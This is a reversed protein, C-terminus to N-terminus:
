KQKRKSWGFTFSYPLILLSWRASTGMQRRVRFLALKGRNLICHNRADISKLGKFPPFFLTHQKFHAETLISSLEQNFNTAIGSVHLASYGIKRMKDLVCTSM